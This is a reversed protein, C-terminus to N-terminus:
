GRAHAAWQAGVVVPRVQELDHHVQAPLGFRAIRATLDDQAAVDDRVGVEVVHGLADSSKAVVVAGSDLAGQVANRSDSVPGPADYAERRANAAGHEPRDVYDAVHDLRAL